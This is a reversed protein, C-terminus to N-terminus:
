RLVGSVRRLPLSRHLSVLEVRPEVIALVYGSSEVGRSRSMEYRLRVTAQDCASEGFGNAPFHCWTAM